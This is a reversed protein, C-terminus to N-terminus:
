PWAQESCRPMTKRSDSCRRLGVDRQGALGDLLDADVAVLLAFAVALEMAGQPEGLLIVAGSRDGGFPGAGISRM